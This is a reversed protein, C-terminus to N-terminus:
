ASKRMPRGESVDDVIEKYFEDVSISLLVIDDQVTEVCDIPLYHHKGDPSNKRTLKIFEGEVHDVVGVITAGDNAQVPMDEQIDQVDKM